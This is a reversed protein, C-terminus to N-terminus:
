AEFDGNEKRRYIVKGDYELKLKPFDKPSVLWFNGDPRTIRLESNPSLSAITQPEGDRRKVTLDRAVDLKFRAGTGLKPSRWPNDPNESSPSEISVSDASMDRNGSMSDFTLQRAKHEVSTTKGGPQHYSVKDGPMVRALVTPEKTKLDFISLYYGTGQSTTFRDGSSAAYTPAPSAVTDSVTITPTVTTSM